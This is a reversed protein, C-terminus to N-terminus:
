TKSKTIIIVGVGIFAIGLYGGVFFSLIITLMVFPGLIKGSTKGTLMGYIILGVMALIVLGMIISNIGIIARTIPGSHKVM